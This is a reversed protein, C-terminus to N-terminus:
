NCTEGCISKVEGVCTSDWKTSCCYSDQACIQAACDNCSKTLKNGTACVDHRCSGTGGSSSSSTSGSSSSSSSTAGSSSSSSSSGGGGVSTCKGVKNSWELQVTFGNVTAATGNCIDGIEGNTQDYWALPAGVQTALGVAGDTVAEILEHSSVETTNDQQTGAGCGGACSGGLDPMVGYYANSGNHTFTGHYACFQVCSSGAGQPGTINKGPPFYMMYLNNGDNAPLKGADILKAIEAQIAADTISSGTPATTDVVSGGFTGRQIQQTPTNYESLWDFYPSDLVAPYFQNIHDQFQVSSGWYVAYVKVNALVPGGYYKLQAGAPGASDSVKLSRDLSTNHMKMVHVHGGGTFAASAAENGNTETTDESSASCAAIALATASLSIIAALRSIM